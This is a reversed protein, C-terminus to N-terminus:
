RRCKNKNERGATRGSKEEDEVDVERRGPRLRRAPTEYVALWGREVDNWM